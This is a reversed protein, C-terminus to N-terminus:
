NTFLDRVELNQLNAIDDPLKAIQNTGLNLEVMHSWTGIDQFFFVYLENNNVKLGNEVLTQDISSSSLLYIIFIM